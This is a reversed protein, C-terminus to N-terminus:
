LRSPRCSYLLTRMQANLLSLLLRLLAFGSHLGSNPQGLLLLVLKAPRGLVPVASIQTLRCFQPQLPQGVLEVAGVSLM